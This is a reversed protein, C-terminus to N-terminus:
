EGKKQLRLGEFWVQHAFASLARDEIADKLNGYDLTRVREAVARAVDQEPLSARFPYDGEHSEIIEAEPFVALLDERRRSQVLLRQPGNRDRVISLFADSAFIWM